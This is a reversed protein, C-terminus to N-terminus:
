FTIRILTLSSFIEGSRNLISDCGTRWSTKTQKRKNTGDNEMRLPLKLAGVEGAAFDGAHQALTNPFASHRQKGTSVREFVVKPTGIRRSSTTRTATPDEM